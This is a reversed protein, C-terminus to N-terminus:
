PTTIQDQWQQFGEKNQQTWAAFAQADSEEYCKTNRPKSKSQKAPSQGGSKGNTKERDRRQKEKLDNYWDHLKIPYPLISEPIQVDIDPSSRIVDYLHTVSLLRAQLDTMGVIKTEGFVSQHGFERLNVYNRM